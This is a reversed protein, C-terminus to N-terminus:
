GALQVKNKRILVCVNGEGDISDLTVLMKKASKKPTEEVTGETNIRVNYNKLWLEASDGSVKIRAGVPFRMDLTRPTIGDIFQQPSITTHKIM